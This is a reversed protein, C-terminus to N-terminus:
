NLNLTRIQSDMLIKQIKQKTTEYMREYPYLENLQTLISPSVIVTDDNFYNVRKKQSLISRIKSSKFYLSYIEKTCRPKKFKLTMTKNFISDRIREDINQFLM